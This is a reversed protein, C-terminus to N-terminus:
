NIWNFLFVPFCHGNYVVLLMTAILLKGPLSSNKQPANHQLPM